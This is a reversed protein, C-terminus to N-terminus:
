VAHFTDKELGVIAVANEERSASVPQIREICIFRGLRPAEADTGVKVAAYVVAGAISAKQHTRHMWVSPWKARRALSDYHFFKQYGM